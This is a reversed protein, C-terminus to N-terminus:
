GGGEAAKPKYAAAKSAPKGGAQNTMFVAYSEDIRRDQEDLLGLTDEINTIDQPNYPQKAAKLRNQIKKRHNNTMDKSLGYLFKSAAPDTAIEAAYFALRDGSMNNEDARLITDLVNSMALLEKELPDQPGEPTAKSDLMAAGTDKGAIKSTLDYFQQAFTGPTAPQPNLGSSGYPLVGAGKETIYIQVVADEQPNVGQLANYVAAAAQFAAMRPDNTLADPVEKPKEEITKKPKGKAM